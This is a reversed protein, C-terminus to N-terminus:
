QRGKGKCRAKKPEPPVEVCDRLAQKVVRPKFTYLRENKMVTKSNQLVPFTIDSFEGSGKLSCLKMNVKAEDSTSEVWWFPVWMYKGELENANYNVDIDESKVKPPSHFVCKNRGVDVVVSGNAIVTKKKDAVHVGNMVALPALKLAGKAIAASAMLGSPYWLYKINRSDVGSEHALVAQFARVRVVDTLINQHDSAKPPDIGLIMPMRGTFPRWGDLFKQLTTTVSPFEVENTLTHKKLTIKGDADIDLIMYVDDENCGKEKVNMHVKFGSNAFVRRPDALDAASLLGDDKRTKQVDDKNPTEDVEINSWEGVNVDPNDTEAKVAKIFACQIKNMDVYKKKEPGMGEKHTLLLISRVFFKGVIIDVGEQTIVGEHLLSEGIDWGQKLLQELESVVKKISSGGLKQIDAKVLLKSVGDVVKESILNTACCAVKVFVLPETATMKLDVVATVFEQGLVKNEGFKKSFRDLFKVLPAGHGGACQVALQGVQDLYPTCAPSSLAVTALVDAFSQTDTRDKDLDAVVSMVELENSKTTVMHSSNLARQCLDPLKPWAVECQWPFERWDWGKELLKKMRHDKQKFRDPLLFGREDAMSKYPTRCGFKVARVWAAFHGTGVSLHTEKGTLTALLGKADDALKQNWGIQESKKPDFPCVQFCAAKTLENFDVGVKDVEAGNKHVNHGNLGLTGRNSMHCGMQDVQLTVTKVINQELLIDWIDNYATIPAILHDNAKDLIDQIM